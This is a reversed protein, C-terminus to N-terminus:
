EFRHSHHSTEMGLWHRSHHCRLWSLENLSWHSEITVIVLVLILALVSVVVIIVLILVL